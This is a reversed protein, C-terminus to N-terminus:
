LPLCSFQESLFQVIFGHCSSPSCRLRNFLQLQRFPVRFCMGTRPDLPFFSSSRFPTHCSAWIGGAYVTTKGSFSVQAFNESVTQITFNVEIGSNNALCVANTKSCCLDINGCISFIVQQVTASSVDSNRGVSFPLSLPSPVCWTLIGSFSSVVIPLPVSFFVLFSVYM